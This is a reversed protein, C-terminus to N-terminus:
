VDTFCVKPTKYASESSRSLATFIIKIGYFDVIKKYSFLSLFYKMKNVHLKLINFSTAYALLLRIVRFKLPGYLDTRVCLCCKESRRDPEWEGM